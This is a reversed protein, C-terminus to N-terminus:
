AIARRCVGGQTFVNLGVIVGSAPARVDTNSLEFDQAKLRSTLAEGEKQVDSLQARVERQYEQTRQVRRLTLEMVQRQARGINGFDESLSGGVQAYTRELDLLRSRPIYGDKALDRM